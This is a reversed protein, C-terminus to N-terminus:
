RLFFQTDINHFALWTLLDNLNADNKIFVPPTRRQRLFKLNLGYFMNGM